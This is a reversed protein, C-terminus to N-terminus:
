KVFIGRNNEDESKELTFGKLRVIGCVVTWVTTEDVIDTSWEM